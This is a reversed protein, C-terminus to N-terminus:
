HNLMVIRKKRLHFILGLTATIGVLTFMPAMTKIAIYRNTGHGKTDVLGRSSSDESLLIIPGPLSVLMKGETVEPAPSLHFEHGVERRNRTSGPCTVSCLPSEPFLESCVLASCHFYVMTSIRKIRSVFTFAKVDFRQYHNPYIVSSGVPHFTTKHKGLNYVCGDMVINWQPLSAPDETPSIWCNNLVLKIDPDTRNLIRVEMYIPQRVHKVVPYDEDGYPQLYSKDPYSKLSLVLPGLNMSAKPPPLHKVNTKLFRDDKSYSCKVTMRFESSSSIRRSPHETWLARIENEYIVKDGQFKYKTGCGNLPIHFRVLAQSPSELTPRCSSNGVRLTNMNLTPKTNSRNVEIDMFGDQTCLEGTFDCEPYIVMAAPALAFSFILKLSPLYFQYSLCKEPFKIKLLTKKFHLRLGNKEEVNIGKKHLQRMSFIKNDFSLAKLKGPFEPITLTMHTSNCTVPDLVCIMNSTFTTTQGHYKHSLKLPMMYLHSNGQTYHILGTANFSVQIIVKDIDFLINYGQVMAESVTLSLNPSFHMTWGRQALLGPTEDAVDPFVKLSFSMLDKTCNTSGTTHHKTEAGEMVPCTFHYIVGEKLTTNSETFRLTMHHQNHKRKTCTEYPAILTSKKLDLVYTCIPMENGSNDLVSTDWKMFDFSNPFEVIMRNERCHVVGTFVFKELQFPSISNVSTVFTFFFSLSRWDADLWSSSTRWAM